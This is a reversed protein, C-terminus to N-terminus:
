AFLQRKLDLNESAAEIVCQVDALDALELTPQIRGVAAVVAAQDLRGRRAFRELSGQVNILGRQLAAEAVDYLRVELGAAAAVQAIGSGMTGAGIVGIREIEVM